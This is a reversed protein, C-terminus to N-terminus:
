SPAPADKGAFQMTECLEPIRLRAQRPLAEMDGMHERAGPVDPM